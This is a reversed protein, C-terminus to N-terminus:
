KDGKEIVYHKKIDEEFDITCTYFEQGSYKGYAVFRLKGNRDVKVKNGDVYPHDEIEVLEGEWIALEEEFTEVLWETEQTWTINYFSYSADILSERQTKKVDEILKELEDVIQKNIELIFHSPTYESETYEDDNLCKCILYQTM